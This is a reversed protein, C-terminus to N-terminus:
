FMPLLTILHETGVLVKKSFVHFHEVGKVSKNEMPNQKILFDGLVVRLHELLEQYKTDTLTTRPNLWVVYNIIDEQLSYPYNNLTIAFDEPKTLPFLSTGVYHSIDIGKEQLEDKYQQYTQMTEPDREFLENRSIVKHIEDWTLKM